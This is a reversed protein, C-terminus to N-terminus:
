SDAELMITVPGDNILHVNMMAGFIGTEVAIGQQRLYHVATNYLPEAIDPPASAMFNPRLGKKADGYLTFQSVLLVAGGVDALSLNMKGEADNFIRLRVLKDCLKFVEASTDKHTIGILALLGKGIAGVTKGEVEVAASSVRQLLIRM